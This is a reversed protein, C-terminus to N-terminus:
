LRLRGTNLYTKQGGGALSAIAVLPNSSSGSATLTTLTPSALPVDTQPEPEGSLDATASASRAISPQEDATRLCCTVSTNSSSLVLTLGSNQGCTGDCCALDNGPVCAVAGAAYSASVLLLIAVVTKRM